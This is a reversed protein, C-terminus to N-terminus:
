SGVPPQQDKTTAECRELIRAFEDATPEKFRAATPWKGRLMSAADAVIQKLREFGRKSSKRGEAMEANAVHCDALWLAARKWYNVEASADLSYPDQTTVPEVIVRVLELQIPDKNVLEQVQEASVGWSTAALHPSNAGRKRVAFLIARESM